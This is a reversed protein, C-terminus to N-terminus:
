TQRVYVCNLFDKIVLKAFDYDSFYEERLCFKTGDWHIEKVQEIKVRGTV